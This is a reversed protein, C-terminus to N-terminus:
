SEAQSQYLAPIADNLQALTAGLAANTATAPSIGAAMLLPFLRAHDRAPDIHLSLEVPHVQPREQYPALIGPAAGPITLAAALNPYDAHLLYFGGPATPNHPDPSVWEPSPLAKM